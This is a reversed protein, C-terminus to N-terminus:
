GLSVLLILLTDMNKSFFYFSIIWLFITTIARKHEFSLESLTNLIVLCNSLYQMGIEAISAKLGSIRRGIIM